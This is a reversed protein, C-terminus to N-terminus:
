CPVRASAAFSGAPRDSAIRRIGALMCDLRLCQPKENDIEVPRGLSPVLDALRGSVDADVDGPNGASVARGNRHGFPAVDIVVAKPAAM